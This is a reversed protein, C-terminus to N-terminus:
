DRIRLQGVVIRAFSWPFAFAVIFTSIVVLFFFFLFFFVLFFAFVTPALIARTDDTLRRFVLIVGVVPAAEVDAIPEHL